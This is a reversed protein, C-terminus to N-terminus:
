KKRFPKIQAIDYKKRLKRGSSADDFLRAVGEPVERDKLREHYLIEGDDSLGMAFTGERGGSLKIFLAIIEPDDIEIRDIVNGSESMQIAQIQKIKQSM